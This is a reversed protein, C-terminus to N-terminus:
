KVSRLVAALDVGYVAMLAAQVGGPNRAADDGTWIGRRYLEDELDKSSAKLKVERWPHGYDAGLKLDRRKVELGEAGIKIADRPIVKRAVKGEEVFEVVASKGRDEIVRVFEKAVTM